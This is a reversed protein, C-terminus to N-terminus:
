LWQLYRRIRRFLLLSLDRVFVWLFYRLSISFLCLVPVINIGHYKLFLNSDAMYPSLSHSYSLMKRKYRNSKGCFEMNCVCTFGNFKGSSFNHRALPLLVSLSASFLILKKSNRKGNWRRATKLKSELADENNRFYWTWKYTFLKNHKINHRKAEAANNENARKMFPYYKQISFSYCIFQMQGAGTSLSPQRINSGM